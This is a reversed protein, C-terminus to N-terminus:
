NMLHCTKVVKKEVPRNSTRNFWYFIYNILSFVSVTLSSIYQYCTPRFSHCLGPLLARVLQAVLEMTNTLIVYYYHVAILYFLMPCRPQSSDRSKSNQSSCWCNSRSGQWQGEIQTPWLSTRWEEGMIASLPKGHGHARAVIRYHCWLDFVIQLEM